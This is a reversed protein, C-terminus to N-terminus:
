PRAQYSVVWNKIMEYDFYSLEGRNFMSSRPKTMVILTSNPDGPTLNPAGDSGSEFLAAYSDTRYDGGATASGHCASCHADFFAALPASYRLGTLFTTSRQGTSRGEVSLVESTEVTYSASDPLPGNALLLLVVRGYLTDILTASYLSEAAEFNGAPFLRYRTADEASARDLPEAFEVEVGFSNASAARIPPPPALLRAGHCGLLAIVIVGAAAGHERGCWHQSM